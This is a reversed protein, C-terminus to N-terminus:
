RRRRESPLREMTEEALEEGEYWGEAGVCTRGRFGLRTARARPVTGAGVGGAAGVRRGGQAGAVLHHDQQQHEGGAVEGRDWREARYNRKGDGLDSRSAHDGRKQGQSSACSHRAM